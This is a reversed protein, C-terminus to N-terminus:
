PVNLTEFYGESVCNRFVTVSPEGKALRYGDPVIGFSDSSLMPIASALAASKVGPASRTRELLDKYFQRQQDQSYHVLETDFSTIFLHDTRFGPGQTLQDRLGQVLVASVMLLVLSLAVQGAVITNRGWFRRKGASDADTAKLAPILDPRTIRLAPALGFLLVSLVSAVLTFLLVRQDVSMDFVIPLDFPVPCRRWYEAVADAVLVGAAGGGVAVLLNELLLQRVLAWRSAGIATRVAIERSRGRARSLLLGAVNACSVALVCLGLVGLMTVMGTVAPSQAVRLQLETEVQVRDGAAAQAHLKLLQPALAGIDARAQAVSADPRLRGKVFLWGTNRDHLLNPGMRPSMALPVFLTPRVFTDIGTFHEPAVGIVTFEVGNLRIRSGLVSPSAEFRSVWFDHGLVVVADRGEAQDEDARFGRGLAPEVGLVQFFNGSVYMGYKMRALGHPDASFGFKAFSAAALGQFTRNHDRLDTYDPYSIKSNGGFSAATATNIAVVSAPDRVPLPRLLLADAFSFMASTAGIGLALSCIAAFTFGPDKRLVRFAYKLSTLM